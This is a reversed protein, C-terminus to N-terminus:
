ELVRAAEPRVRELIACFDVNPFGAQLVLMRAGSHTLLYEIESARYRTNVAVLVARVRALGFLLALWEVRNTLWVAVRDGPRIGQGRLWAAASRSMADLERYTIRREGDILAIGDPQTALREDLLAPLTLATEM